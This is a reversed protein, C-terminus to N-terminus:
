SHDANSVEDYAQMIDDYNQVFETVNDPHVKKFACTSLINPDIQDIHMGAKILINKIFSTKDALMDEYYIKSVSIGKANLNAYASEKLKNIALIHNYKGRFVGVNYINKDSITEGVFQLQPDMCSLTHKLTDRRFLIFVTVGHEKLVSAVLDTVYGVRIKFCFSSPPFPKQSLKPGMSLYVEDFKEHNDAFLYDLLVAFDDDAYNSFYDNEFPEFGYVYIFNSLYSILASSGEHGDFVIIFKQM